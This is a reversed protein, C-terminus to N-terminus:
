LLAVGAAQDPAGDGEDDLQDRPVGRAPALSPQRIRKDMGHFFQQGAYGREALYTEDDDVM